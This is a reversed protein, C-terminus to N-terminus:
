LDDIHTTKLGLKYDSIVVATLFYNLCSSLISTVSWGVGTVHINEVNNQM